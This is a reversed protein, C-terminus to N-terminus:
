ERRGHRSQRATQRRGPAARWPRSRVTPFVTGPEPGLGREPSAAPRGDRRGELPPRQPVEGRGALIRSGGPQHRLMQLVWAGKVYVKGGDFRFVKEPDTFHRYVMPKGTESPDFRAVRRATEWMQCEFRHPSDTHGAWLSDLLVAFGENLWAESASRYN